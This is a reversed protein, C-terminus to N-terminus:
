SKKQRQTEKSLIKRTNKIQMEHKEQPIVLGHVWSWGAGDVEVWSLGAGDVVVWSMEAEVRSEAVGEVIISGFHQM